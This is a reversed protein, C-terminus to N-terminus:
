CKGDEDDHPPLVVPISKAVSFIDHDILIINLNALNELMFKDFPLKADSYSDDIDVLTM